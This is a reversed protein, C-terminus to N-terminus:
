ATEATEGSAAVEGSTQSQGSLGALYDRAAQMAQQGSEPGETLMRAYDPNDTFFQAMEPNQAFEQAAQPFSRLWDATMYENYDTFIAEDQSAAMAGQALNAQGLLVGMADSGVAGAEVAAQAAQAAGERSETFAQAYEPQSVLFQLFGQQQELMGAAGAHSGLWDSTLYQGYDTNISTM